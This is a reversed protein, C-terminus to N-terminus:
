FKVVVKGLFNSVNFYNNPVKKGIRPYVVTTSLILTYVSLYQHSRYNKLVQADPFIEAAHVM